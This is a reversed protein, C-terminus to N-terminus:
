PAKLHQRPLRSVLFPKTDLGWCRLSLCALKQITFHISQLVAQGEVSVFHTLWSNQFFLCIFFFQGGEEHKTQSSKNWDSTKTTVSSECSENTFCWVSVVKRKACLFAHCELTENQQNQAIFAFVKEHMKDATCYSIRPSLTVCCVLTLAKCDTKLLYFHHKASIHIHLLRM